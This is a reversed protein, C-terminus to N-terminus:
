LWWQLFVFASMSIILVWITALRTLSLNIALLAGLLFPNDPALNLSGAPFLVIPITLATLVAPASFRLFRKMTDNIRIPMSKALFFYRVSFTVCAMMVIALWTMM